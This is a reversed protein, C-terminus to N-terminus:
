KREREDPHESAHQRHYHSVASPCVNSGGNLASWIIQVNALDAKVQHRHDHQAEFKLGGM